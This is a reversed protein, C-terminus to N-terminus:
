LCRTECRIPPHKRLGAFGDVTEERAAHEFQLVLEARDIPLEGRGFLEIGVVEFSEHIQQGMFDIATLDPMREFHPVLTKASSAKTARARLCPTAM